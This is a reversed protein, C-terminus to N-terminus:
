HTVRLPVPLYKISSSLQALRALHVPPMAAGPIKLSLNWLSMTFLWDTPKLSSKIERNKSTERKKRGRM